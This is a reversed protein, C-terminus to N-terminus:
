EKKNKKVKDQGPPNKDKNKEKAQGPPTKEENTNEPQAPQTQGENKKAQGPPTPKEADKRKIGLDKWIQGWGEGDETRRKLLDEYNYQGDTAKATQLALAIQGVGAGDCFKTKIDEDDKGYYGALFSLVPHYEGAKKDDSCYASGWKGEGNGEDVEDVPKVWDALIITQDEDQYEGKVHVYSGVTFQTVDVDDSFEITILKTNGEPDTIEVTISKPDGDIDVGDPDVATIVGELNAKGPKAMALSFSMALLVAVLFIVLVFKKM